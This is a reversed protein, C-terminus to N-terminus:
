HNHKVKYSINLPTDQMLKPNAKARTNREFLLHGFGSKKGEDKERKFSIQHNFAEKLQRM